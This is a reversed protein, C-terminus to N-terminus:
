FFFALLFRLAQHIVHTMVNQVCVSTSLQNWWVLIWLWFFALPRNRSGGDDGPYISPIPSLFLLLLLLLLAELFPCGKLPIINGAKLSLANASSPFYRRALLMKYDRLSSKPQDPWMDSPGRGIEQHYRFIQRIPLFLPPPPTRSSTSSSSYRPYLHFSAIHTEYSKSKNVQFSMKWMAVRLWLACPHTQTHIHTLALQDRCHLGASKATQPINLNFDFWPIFLLPSAFLMWSLKSQFFEPAVLWIENLSIIGKLLQAWIESTTSDPKLQLSAIGVTLLVSIRQRLKM